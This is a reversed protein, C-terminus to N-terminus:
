TPRDKMSGEWCIRSKPTLSFSLGTGPKSSPFRTTTTSSLLAHSSTDFSRAFAVVRRRWPLNVKPDRRRGRDATAEIPDVRGVYILQDGTPVFDVLDTAVNPGVRDAIEAYLRHVGGHTSRSICM